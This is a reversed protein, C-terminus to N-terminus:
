SAASATEELTRAWSVGQRELALLLDHTIRERSQYVLGNAKAFAYDDLHVSLRTPGLEVVAGDVHRYVLAQRVLSVIRPDDLGSGDISLTIGFRRNFSEKTLTVRELGLDREQKRCWHEDDIYESARILREEIEAPTAEEQVLRRVISESREGVEMVGLEIATVLAPQLEFM